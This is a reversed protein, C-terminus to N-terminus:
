LPAASPHITAPSAPVRIPPPPNSAASGAAQETRIHCRFRGPVLPISAFEVGLRILTSRLSQITLFTRIEPRSRSFLLATTDRDQETSLTFRYSERGNVPTNEMSIDVYGCRQVYAQFDKDTVPISIM